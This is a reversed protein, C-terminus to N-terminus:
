CKQLVGLGIVIEVVIGMRNKNEHKPYERNVEWDENYPYSIYSNVPKCREGRVVVYERDHWVDKEHLSETGTPHYRSDLSPLNRWYAGDPTCQQRDLTHAVHGM